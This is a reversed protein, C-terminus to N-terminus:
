TEIEHEDIQVINWRDVSMKSTDPPHNAFVLVHPCNGCIAGGEYKGSYFFMDKVSEIAEYSVYEAAYSRPIPYIVFEPTDGDNRKSYEVVGNRVDAGKGALITAGHRAFLYKGFTTKGINGEMSWYWHITRDDPDESILGLLERQWDYLEEETLLKLPRRPKMTASHVYCGDKSCYTVNQKRNGKAREWHISRDLKLKEIPRIKLPAELYGQLHPTGSEGEEKGFIYEIDHQRFVRELTEMATEDYNNYTFTWRKSPVSRKSPSITNGGEMEMTELKRKM